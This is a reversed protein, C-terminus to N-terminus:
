VDADRKDSTGLKKFFKIQPGIQKITLERNIGNFTGTATWSKGETVTEIKVDGEVEAGSAALAARAADTLKGGALGALTLEFAEASPGANM